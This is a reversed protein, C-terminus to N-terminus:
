KLTKYNRTTFDHRFDVNKNDIHLGTCHQYPPVLDGTPQADAAGRGRGRRRRRRGTREGDARPEASEPEVAARPPPADALAAQPQLPDFWVFPDQLSPTRGRVWVFGDRETEERMRRGGRRGRRRRRSGDDGDEDAEAARATRAETRPEARPRPRDEGEEGDADDDADHFDEADDDEDEAEDYTFDDDGPDFADIEPQPPVFDENTEVRDLAHEAQGLAEDIM